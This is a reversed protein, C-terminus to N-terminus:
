CSHIIVVIAVEHMELNVAHLCLTGYELLSVPKSSNWKALFLFCVAVIIVIEIPNQQFFVSTSTPFKWILPIAWTYQGQYKGENDLTFM